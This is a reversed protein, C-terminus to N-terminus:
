NVSFGAPPNPTPQPVTFSVTNSAVSIQGNVARTQLSCTYTGPGFDRVFTLVPGAIQVVTPGCTLTYGAIQAAPLSSGDTYATPATWSFTKDLAMAPAAALVLLAILIRM